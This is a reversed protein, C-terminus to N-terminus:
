RRGKRRKQAFAQDLAEFSSFTRKTNGAQAVIDPSLDFPKAEADSLQVSDKDSVKAADLNFYKGFDDDEADNGDDNHELKAFSVRQKIKGATNKRDKEPEEKDSEALISKEYLEAFSEEATEVFVKGATNKATSKNQVEDDANRRSEQKAASSQKKNELELLADLSAFQKAFRNDKDVEPQLDKESIKVGFKESIDQASLNKRACM